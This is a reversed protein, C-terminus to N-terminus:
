RGYPFRQVVDADRWLQVGGSLQQPRHRLWWAYIRPGRSANWLDHQPWHSCCHCRRRCCNHWLRNTGDGYRLRGRARDRDDSSTCPSCSPERGCRRLGAGAAAANRRWARARRFQRVVHRGAHGAVSRCACGHRTRSVGARGCGASGRGPCGNGNCRRGTGRRAHSADFWTGDAVPSAACADLEDTGAGGSNGRGAGAALRRSAAYGLGAAGCRAAAHHGSAPRRLGSAVRRADVADRWAAFGCAFGVTGRRRTSATTARALPAPPQRIGRRDVHCCSSETERSPAGM